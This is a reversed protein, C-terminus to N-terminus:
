HHTSSKSWILLTLHLEFPDKRTTNGGRRRLSPHTHPDTCLILWPPVVAASAKDHGGDGAISSCSTSAVSSYIHPAVAM